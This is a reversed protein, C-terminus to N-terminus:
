NGGRAAATNPKELLEHLVTGPFAPDYNMKRAATFYIDQMRPFRAGLATLIIRTDQPWQKIGYIEELGPAVADRTFWEAVPHERPGAERLLRVAKEIHERAITDIDEAAALSYLPLHERWSRDGGERLLAIARVIDRNAIAAYYPWEGFTIRDSAEAFADINHEGQALVADFLASLEAHRKM